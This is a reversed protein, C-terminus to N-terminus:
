CLGFPEALLSRSPLLSLSVTRCGRASRQSRLTERPVFVGWRRLGRGACGRGDCRLGDGRPHTQNKENEKLRRCVEIGDVEPMRVDLVVLHPRYSGIAVLADIGNEITKLEYLKEHEQFLRAIARLENSEDDVWLIRRRAADELNKPIPMDHERLFAVVDAARIRRHGGPTRFAAIRGDKVWKNVSSPNVQLITGVQYSTLLSDPSLKEDPDSM